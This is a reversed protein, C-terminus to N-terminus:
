TWRISEIVVNVHVLSCTPDLDLAAKMVAVVTRQSPESTQKLYTLLPRSSPNRAAKWAALADRIQPDIPQSEDDAYFSVMAQNTQAYKNKMTQFHLKGM